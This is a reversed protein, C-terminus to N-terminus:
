QATILRWREILRVKNRGSWQADDPILTVQDATVAGEAVEAHPNLPIRYWQKMLSQAEPSLMWEMFKKAEEHDPGNKILAMAGIEYGAGDTPLSLAVPYGKSVGKKLIDHSFAVGVTIEGLGVQTVCSSGSKNYHHINRDLRRFYDMAKAEGLHQVMSSLVTYATGSTYPYAMGIEGRFGPALLENWSRPPKAGLLKLRETNVAYGIVGFYFGTWRWDPDHGEDKPEFDLAPKYPELLGREAAAVFDTSSGGFWLGMTPRTREADVRAFVEGSSMRQLKIKLSGGESEVKKLYASLYIKTEDPDLASYLSLVREQGGKGGGLTEQGGGSDDEGAPKSCGAFLMACFLLLTCVRFIPYLCRGLGANGTGM